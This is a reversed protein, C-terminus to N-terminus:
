RTFTILNLFAFRTLPANSLPSMIAIVDEGLTLAVTIEVNFLNAIARLRLEDDFTEIKIM